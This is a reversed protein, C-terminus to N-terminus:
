AISNALTKFTDSTRRARSSAVSLNSTLISNLMAVCLDVKLLASTPINWENCVSCCAQCLYTWHFKSAPCHTVSRHSCRVLRILIFAPIQIVVPLFWGDGITSLHRGFLTTTIPKSTCYLWVASTSVRQEIKMNKLVYSYYRDICLTGRVLLM